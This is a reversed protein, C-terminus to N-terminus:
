QVCNESFITLDQFDVFGDGNYDADPDTTFFVSKFDELSMCKITSCTIELSEGPELTLAHANFSLALVIMPLYKM